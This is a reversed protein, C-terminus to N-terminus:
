ATVAFGSHLQISQPFKMHHIVGKGSWPL